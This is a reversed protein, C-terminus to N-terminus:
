RRSRRNLVLALVLIGAFAVYYSPEPVAVADLTTGYRIEDVVGQFSGGGRIFLGVTEEDSSVFAGYGVTSTDTSTSTPVGLAIDSSTDSPNLWIDVTDSGAAWSLRGVVLHTVDKTYAVGTATVAGARAAVTGNGFIMLGLGDNFTDRSSFKIIFDSATTSSPTNFLLSFWQTNGSVAFGENDAFAYDRFNGASSSTNDRAASGSSPLHGPYSLGSAAVVLSGSANLSTAYPDDFGIGGGLGTLSANPTYSFDEYLVLAATAPIQLFGVAALTYAISLSRINMPKLTYNPLGNYEYSVSSRWVISSPVNASVFLTNLGQAM